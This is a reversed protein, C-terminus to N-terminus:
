FHDSLLCCYHLLYVVLPPITSSKSYFYLNFVFSLFLHIAASSLESVKLLVLSSNHDVRFNFYGNAHTYSLWVCLSSLILFVNLTYLMRYCTGYMRMRNIYRFLIGIASFVITVVSEMTMLLDLRQTHTHEHFPVLHPYSLACVCM